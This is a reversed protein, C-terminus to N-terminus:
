GATSTVVPPAHSSSYLTVAGDSAFGGGTGLGGAPVSGAPTLSGDESREYVVVENGPRQM